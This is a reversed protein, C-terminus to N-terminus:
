LRGVCPGLLLNALFDVGTEVEEGKGDEGDANDADLDVLEDVVPSVEVGDMAVETNDGGEPEKGLVDDTEGHEAKGLQVAALGVRLLHPLIM